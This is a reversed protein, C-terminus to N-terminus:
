PFYESANTRVQSWFEPNMETMSFIVYIFWILYKDMRLKVRMFFVVTVKIWFYIGPNMLRIYNYSLVLALGYWFAHSKWRILGKRFLTMLFASSQIAILANWGMDQCRVHPTTQSALAAFQYFSFFRM